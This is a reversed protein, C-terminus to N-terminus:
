KKIDTIFDHIEFKIKNSIDNYYVVSMFKALKKIDKIDLGSRFACNLGIRLGYGLDYPLLRYNVLLGVSHLKCFYKYNEEKSPCLIWIHNSSQLKSTRKIVPINHSILLDELLITAYNTNSSYQKLEDYNLYPLISNAISMPHSNSIYTKSNEHYKHWITDNQKTAIIGKQPGPYNKHLTSLIMDFGMEFPSKYIKLIINTFYQSADFIKYMNKYKSVWSFDEYYLGESRDVFLYKPQEKVILKETEVTDITFNENDAIMPVIKAGISELIKKTSFHGGCKEPLLMVKDGPTIICLFLVLHANLGSLTKLDIKEANLVEGWQNKIEEFFLTYNERGGFIVKDDKGRINDSVYLGEMFSNDASYLPINETPNLILTNQFEKKLNKLKYSYIYKFDIEAVFFVRNDKVIGEKYNTTPNFNYKSILKQLKNCSRLTTVKIQKANIAIAYDILLELLQKGYKKNQFKKYVFFHRIEYSNNSLKRLGVCGCIKGKNDIACWFMGEELYITNINLIDSYDELIRNNEKFAKKLFIILGTHMKKEYPVIELKNQLIM